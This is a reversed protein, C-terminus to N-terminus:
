MTRLASSHWCTPAGGGLALSLGGTGVAVAVVRSDTVAIVDLALQLPQWLVVM